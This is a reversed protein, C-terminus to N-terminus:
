DVFERPTGNRSGHHGVKYFDVGRLLANATPDALMMQWTGWMTDSAFLLKQGAVEILLVLSTGNVFKGLDTSKSTSRVTSEGEAQDFEDPEDVEDFEDGVDAGAERSATSSSEPAGRGGFVAGAQPALNRIVSLDHSPGLVHVTVDTPLFPLSATDLTDPYRDARPLYR